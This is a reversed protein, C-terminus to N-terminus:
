FFCGGFLSVQVDATLGRCGVGRCDWWVVIVSLFVLCDFVMLWSGGVLLLHQFVYSYFTCCPRIPLFFNWKM